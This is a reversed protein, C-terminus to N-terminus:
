LSVKLTKSKKVIYVSDTGTRTSIAGTVRVVHSGEAAGKPIRVTKKVPEINSLSDNSVTTVM